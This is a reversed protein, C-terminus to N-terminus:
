FCPHDRRRIGFNIPEFILVLSTWVFPYFVKPWILMAPFMLLGVVFLGIFAAILVPGLFMRWALM